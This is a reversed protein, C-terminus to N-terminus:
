GGGCGAGLREGPAAGLYRGEVARSPSSRGEEARSPSSRGGRGFVAFFRGLVAANFDVRTGHHYM